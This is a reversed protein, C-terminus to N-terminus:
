PAAWGIVSAASTSGLAVPQYAPASAAYLRDKNLFLLATGNANWAWASVGLDSVKPADAGPSGIWLGAVDRWAWAKGGPAALPESKPVGGPLAVNKGAPTFALAGKDGAGWIVGMTNLYAVAGMDNADLRKLSGDLKLLYLGGNVKTGCSCLNTQAQTIGLVINGSAADFDAAGFCGSFLQTVKLPQINVARLNYLGCAPSFSYVLFTNADAWGLGIEGSSKPKYLEISTGSDAQTAWAGLMAIGAGTGFGSAGFQIIVKGDPSWTPAYAQSPGDTLRTV